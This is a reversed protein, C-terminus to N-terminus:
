EGGERFLKDWQVYHDTRRSIIFMEAAELRAELKEIRALLPKEIHEKGSQFSVEAVRNVDTALQKISEADM